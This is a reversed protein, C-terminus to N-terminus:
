PLAGAATLGVRQAAGCIKRGIWNPHLGDSCDMDLRTGSGDSLIVTYTGAAAVTNTLAYYTDTVIHDAGISNSEIGAQVANYTAQVAAASGGLTSIYGAAPTMLCWVVIIGPSDTRLQAIYATIEALIQASTKVNETVDNIGLTGVAWNIDSKSGTWATWDDLQDQITAGSKAFNQIGRRGGGGLRRSEAYTYIWACAPSKVGQFDTGGTYFSTTSDGFYAGEQLISNQTRPQGIMGQIRTHTVDLIGTAGGANSGLYMTTPAGVTSVAPVVTAPPAFYAGASCLWLGMTGSAFDHWVRAYCETGIEGGVVGTTNVPGTIVNSQFVRDTTGGDVVEWILKYTSGLGIAGAYMWYLRATVGAALALSFVNWDTGAGQMVDGCRLFPLRYTVALDIVGGAIGGSLQAGAVTPLQASVTGDTLPLQALVALSSNRQNTAGGWAINDGLDAVAGTGGSQQLPYGSMRVECYPQVNNGRGLYRRWNTNTVATLTRDEPTAVAQVTGQENPLGNPGGSEGRLWITCSSTGRGAVVSPSLQKGQWAAIDNDGIRDANGGAGTPGNAVNANATPFGGLRDWSNIQFVYAPGLGADTGITNFYGGFSWLGLEGDAVADPADIMEYLAGGPTFTAATARGTQRWVNDSSNAVATVGTPLTGTTLDILAPLPTSGSFPRNRLRNSPGPM